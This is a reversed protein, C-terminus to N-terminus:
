PIAYSHLFHGLLGDPCELGNLYCPAFEDSSLGYYDYAPNKDTWTFFLTVGDKAPDFQRWDFNRTTLSYRYFIRRSGLDIGRSIQLALFCSAIFISLLAAATGVLLKLWTM